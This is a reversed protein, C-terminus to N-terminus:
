MRLICRKRAIQQRLEREPAPFTVEFEPNQFVNLAWQLSRTLTLLSLSNSRLICMMLKLWAKISHRTHSGCWLVNKIQILFVESSVENSVKHFCPMPNPNAYNLRIISLSKNKTMKSWHLHPFYKASFGHKSYFFLSEHTCEEGHKWCTTRNTTGYSRMEEYKWKGVKTRSCYHEDNSCSPRHETSSQLIFSLKRPGRCRNRYSQSQKGGIVLACAKSEVKWHRM